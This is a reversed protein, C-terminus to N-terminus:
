GAQEGLPTDPCGPSGGGGGGGGGGGTDAEAEAHWTYRRHRPSFQGEKFEYKTGGICTSACLQRTSEM